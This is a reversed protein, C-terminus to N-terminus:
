FGMRRLEAQLVGLDWTFIRHERGLVFLSNGDLSFITAHVGIREPPTLRRSADESASAYKIVDHELLSARQRQDPSRTVTRDKVPLPVPHAGDPNGGPWAECPPADPDISAVLWTGDATVDLVTMGPQRPVRNPPEPQGKPDIRVRELGGPVQVLIEDARDGLWWASTPADIRQNETALFGTQRQEAVSWIRM